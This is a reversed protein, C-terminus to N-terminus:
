LIIVFVIKFNGEIDARFGTPVSEDNNLQTLPDLSNNGEESHIQYQLLTNKNNYVSVRVESRAFIVHSRVGRQQM